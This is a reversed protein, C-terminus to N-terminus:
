QFSPFIKSFQFYLKEYWSFSFPCLNTCIIAKIDKDAKM